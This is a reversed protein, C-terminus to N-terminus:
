ILYKVSYSRTNNKTTAAQRCSQSMDSANQARPLNGERKKVQLQFTPSMYLSALINILYAHALRFINAELEKGAFRLM